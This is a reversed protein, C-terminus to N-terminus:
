PDTLLHKCKIIMSRNGEIDFSTNREQVGTIKQLRSGSNELIKRRRAERRADINSM